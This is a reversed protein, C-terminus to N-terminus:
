VKGEKLGIITIIIIRCKYGEREEKTIMKERKEIVTEYSYFCM